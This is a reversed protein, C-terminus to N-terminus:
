QTTRVMIGVHDRMMRVPDAVWQGDFVIEVIWDVVKANTAVVKILLRYKGPAIINGRHNPTNILDITMTAVDNGVGLAPNDEALAKKTRNAPDVIHACDCHKGMAPAIAPYYLFPTNSWKLNMPPFAEVIEWVGDARERRLEQVYVEVNKAVTNGANEVWLRLFLADTIHEGTQMDTIPVAVADPSLTKASGRFKPRYFLGRVWEQFVAVIAVLITGIAELWEAPNGTPDSM